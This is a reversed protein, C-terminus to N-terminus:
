QVASFPEGDSDFNHEHMTPKLAGGGDGVTTASEANLLDDLIDDAVTCQVDM